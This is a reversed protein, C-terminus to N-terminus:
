IEVQALMRRALAQEVRWCGVGQKKAFAAQLPRQQTTATALAAAANSHDQL